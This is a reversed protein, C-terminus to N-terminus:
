STELVCMVVSWLQHSEEPRTILEDCIRAHAYTHTHTHTHNKKKKIKKGKRLLPKPLPSKLTM